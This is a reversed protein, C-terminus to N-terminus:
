KTAEETLRVARAMADARKQKQAAQEEPTLASARGANNKVREAFESNLANVAAQAQAVAAPFKALEAAATEPHYTLRDGTQM